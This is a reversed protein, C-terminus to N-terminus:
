DSGYKINRYACFKWVIEANNKSQKVIELTDIKKQKKASRHWIQNM